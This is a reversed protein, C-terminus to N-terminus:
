EFIKPISVTPFAERHSVVSYGGGEGGRPLKEKPLVDVLGELLLLSFDQTGMFPETKSCSKVPKM